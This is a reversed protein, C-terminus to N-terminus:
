LNPIRDIYNGTYAMVRQPTRHADLATLGGVYDALPLVELRAAMELLRKFEESSPDERFGELARVEDQLDVAHHAVELLRKQPLGAAFGELAALQDFVSHLIAGGRAHEDSPEKTHDNGPKEILPRKAFPIVEGM